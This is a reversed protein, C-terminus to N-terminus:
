RAAVKAAVAGAPTPRRGPVAAARELAALGIEIQAVVGATVPEGSLAASLHTPQMGIREAFQHRKLGTADIRAAVQPDLRAIRRSM